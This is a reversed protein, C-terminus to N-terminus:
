KECAVYTQNTSKPSNDGMQYQSFQSVPVVFPAACNKATKTKLYLNRMSNMNMQMIEKNITDVSQQVCSFPNTVPNSGVSTLNVRSSTVHSHPPFYNYSYTANPSSACSLEAFTATRPLSKDGTAVDGMEEVLLQQLDVNERLNVKLFFLKEESLNFKFSTNNLNFDAIPNSYNRVGFCECIVCNGIITMIKLGSQPFEVFNEEQGSLFILIFYRYISQGTFNLTEMQQSGKIYLCFELSKIDDTPIKFLTTLRKITHRLISKSVGEELFNVEDVDVLSSFLNMNVQSLETENKKLYLLCHKLALYSELDSLFGQCLFLYPSTCIEMLSIKRVEKVNTKKNIVSIYFNKVNKKKSPAAHTHLYPTGWNQPLYSNDGLNHIPFFDSQGWLNHNFLPRNFSNLNTMNQACYNNRVGANNYVGNANAYGFCDRNIPPCSPASFRGQTTIGETTCKRDYVSASELLMKAREANFYSVSGTPGGGMMMTMTDDNEPWENPFYDASLVCVKLFANIKENIRNKTDHVLDRLIKTWNWKSNENLFSNIFSALSDKGRDRARDISNDVSSASRSWKGSKSCRKRFILQNEAKRYPHIRQNMRTIEITVYGKNTEQIKKKDKGQNRGSNRCYYVTIYKKDPQSMRRNNRYMRESLRIM